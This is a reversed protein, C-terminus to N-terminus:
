LEAKTLNGIIALGIMVGVLAVLLMHRGTQETVLLAMYAPNMATLGGGALFPLAAVVKATLRGEATLTKAKTRTEKRRRILTALNQLTESLQGGTEQQVVLSVVFCDFDALDIREAAQYLTDKLEVGLRVKDAMGSFEEGVPAGIETGVVGIAEVVPIGAQAARVILDIADPLLDLFALQHTLQAAKIQRIFVWAGTALGITVSLLGGALFVFLALVWVFVAGATAMAMATGAARSGGARDLWIQIRAKLTGATQNTGSSDLEPAAEATVEIPLALRLRTTFRRKRGTALEQLLVALLLGGGLMLLLAAFALAGPDARVLAQLTM